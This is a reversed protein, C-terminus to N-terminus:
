YVFCSVMGSSCSPSNNPPGFLEATHVCWDVNLFFYVRFYTAQDTISTVVVYARADLVDLKRLSDSITFGHVM